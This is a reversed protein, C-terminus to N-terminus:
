RLRWWGVVSVVVWWRGGDPVFGGGAINGTCWKESVTVSLRCDDTAFGIPIPSALPPVFIAPEAFEATEALEAPLASVVDGTTSIALTPPRGPTCRHLSLGGCEVFKVSEASGVGLM